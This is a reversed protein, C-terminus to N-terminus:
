SERQRLLSQIEERGFQYLTNCFQCHAETIEDAGIEALADQPLAALAQRIRERSCRCKFAVPVSAQLHVDFGRGLVSLIKEPGYGLELLQTVYPTMSINRELRALVADDCGPLAQLFYGGAAIVTGNKDVLVGLAVSAPTQESVYLYKTLDSAIEGDELECCGSFPEAHLLHRTVTLTGRGVAGGVDLKGDKLPLFVDPNDVYGRVCSGEADAVIEGIPGDGSIRLTIRENEKMTASLLLAGTLARGLAAAALHSCHHRAAAERTLRTTDVAYVRVKDMTGRSLRDQM